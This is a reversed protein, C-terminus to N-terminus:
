RASCGIEQAILRRDIGVRDLVHLIAFECEEVSRDVFTRHAALPQLAIRFTQQIGSAM